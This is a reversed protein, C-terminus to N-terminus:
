SQLISIRIKWLPQKKLNETDFLVGIKKGNKYLVYDSFMAEIM